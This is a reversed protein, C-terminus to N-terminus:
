SVNISGVGVESIERMKAIATDEGHSRLINLFTIIVDGHCLEPKCFCGLRKGECVMVADRFEPETKWKLIFDYAYKRIVEERDGDIGISYPNGLISRGKGNRGIYVDFKHGKKINVAKTQQSCMQL